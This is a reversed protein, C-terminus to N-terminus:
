LKTAAFKQSLLAMADKHSSGPTRCHKYNEKVFLAFANPTKAPTKLDTADPQLEYKGNQKSAVLLQLQGKCRGCRKRDTDVSKSHRGYRYGCKICEYVFRTRIKYTHCNAILPLEPFRKMAKRGWSKRYAFISQSQPSTAIM